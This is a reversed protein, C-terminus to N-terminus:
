RVAPNADQAESAAHRNACARRPDVADAIKLLLQVLQEKEFSSLPALLTDEAALISAYSRECLARGEDTLKACKVRRDSPDTFSLIMYKKELRSVLGAVTSQACRFREELEKMRCTEEPAHHLTILIRAQAPTLDTDAFHRSAEQHLYGHLYKILHGFSPTSDM